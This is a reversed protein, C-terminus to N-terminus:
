ITSIVPLSREVLATVGSLAPVTSTALAADPAPGTAEQLSRNAGFQYTLSTFSSTRPDDSDFALRADPLSDFRRLEGRLLAFHLARSLRDRYTFLRFPGHDTDIDRADVREVTHETATRQGPDGRRLRDGHEFAHGSRANESSRLALVDM